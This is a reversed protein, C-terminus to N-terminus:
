NNEEDEGCRAPPNHWNGAGDQLPGTECTPFVPVVVRLEASSPAPRRARHSHQAGANKHAAATTITAHSSISKTQPWWGNASSTSFWILSCVVTLGFTRLLKKVIVTM